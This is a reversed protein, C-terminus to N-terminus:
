LEQLRYNEKLNFGTKCVLINRVNSDTKGKMIKKRIISQWTIIIYVTEFSFNNVSYM